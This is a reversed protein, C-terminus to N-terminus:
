LVTGLFYRENQPSTILLTTTDSFALDLDDRLTPTHSRRRTLRTHSTHANLEYRRTPAIDVMYMCYLLLSSPSGNTCHYRDCTCLRLM